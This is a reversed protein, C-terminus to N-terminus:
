VRCGNFSVPGEFVAKSCILDKRYVTHSEFEDGSNFEKRFTCGSLNVAQTFECYRLDVDELFECNQIDVAVLVTRHRLDLQGEIRANRLIYVTEDPERKTLSEVIDGAQVTENDPTV